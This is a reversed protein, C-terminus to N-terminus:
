AHSREEPAHHRQTHLSGHAAAVVQDTLVKDPPGYCRLTKSVCLSTTAFRKIIDVDHSVFLITMARKQALDTILTFIVEEGGVDIGSSPEDLILVDPESMLALAILVRQLEGGSLVGLRKRFTKKAGVDALLAQLQTDSRRSFLLGGSRLRFLERVTMPITRDFDFYQPVYGFTIGEKRGISGEYPLLELIAKLLTSKGGGNPGIVGVIEGPVIELSVDRVVQRGGVTVSV